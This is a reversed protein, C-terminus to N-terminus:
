LAGDREPFCSTRWTAVDSQEDPKGALVGAVHPLRELLALGKARGLVMVTTSLADADMATPALVTVSSLEPPSVGQRPDVIHHQSFDQTFSNMYDGSTAVAQQSIALTSLYPTQATARPHRIGVRWPENEANRGFGALDGGAEVLVNYFGMQQLLAVACDVVYGKAIGDLTVAMGRQGLVVREGDLRLLRYDVLNRAPQLDRGQDYAKLLPLVTVDFAGDSLEAYALARSLVERLAKPARRMAGDRNLRALAAQPRRHDLLGALREIESFTADIAQRGLKVDPTILALNIVTGMVTRAESVTQPAHRALNVALHGGAALWCAVASIKLFNRRSVKAPQQDRKEVMDKQRAWNASSTM